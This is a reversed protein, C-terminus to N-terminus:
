IVPLCGPAPQIYISWIPTNAVPPSSSFPFLRPVFPSLSTPPSPPTERKGSRKGSRIGGKWNRRQPRTELPPQKTKTAGHM